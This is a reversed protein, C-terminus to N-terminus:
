RILTPQRISAEQDSHGEHPIQQKEGFMQEDGGFQRTPGEHIPQYHKTSRMAGLFLDRASVFLDRASPSAVLFRFGGFFPHGNPSRGGGTPQALPQFARGGVFSNSTRVHRHCPLM